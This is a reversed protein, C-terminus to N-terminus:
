EAGYEMSSKSFFFFSFLANLNLLSGFITLDLIATDRPTPIQGRVCAGRGEGRVNDRASAAAAAAAALYPNRLVVTRRNSGGM